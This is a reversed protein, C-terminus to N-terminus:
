NEIYIKSLGCLNSVYELATAKSSKNCQKVIDRIREIAELIPGENTTGEWEEKYDKNIFFNYDGEEIEKKFRQAVWKYWMTLILKPNAKKLRLLANKATIVDSNNPIVREIDELFEVFQNNFAKLYISKDISGQDMM